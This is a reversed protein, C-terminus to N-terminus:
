PNWKQVNAVKKEKREEISWVILDGENLKLGGVIEEPITARLSKSNTTAKVVKSLSPLNVKM